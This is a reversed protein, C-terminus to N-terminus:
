SKFSTDMRGTRKRHTKMNNYMSIFYCKETVEKRKFSHRFMNSNQIKEYLTIYEMYLLYHKVSFKFINFDYLKRDLANM